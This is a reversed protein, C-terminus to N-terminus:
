GPIKGGKSEHQEIFWDPCISRPYEWNTSAWIGHDEVFQHSRVECADPRQEEETPSGSPPNIGSVSHTQRGAVGGDITPGGIPSPGDGAELIEIDSDGTVAVTTRGGYRGVEVAQLRVIDGESLVTGKGSRRWITVKVEGTGDSVIGVQQQTHSAPDYLTEVEGVVTIKVEYKPLTMWFPITGIPKGGRLRMLSDAMSLAVSAPNGEGRKFRAEIISELRNVSPALPKDALNEAAATIRERDDEGVSRAAEPDVESRRAIAGRRSPSRQRRSQVAAVERSGAEYHRRDRERRGPEDDTPRWRYPGQTSDMHPRPDDHSPGSLDVDEHNAVAEYTHREQEAERGLRRERGVMTEGALRGDDADPDAQIYRWSAENERYHDPRLEQGKNDEAAEDLISKADVHAAIPLEGIQRQKQEYDPGSRGHQRHSM